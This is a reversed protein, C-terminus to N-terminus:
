LLGGSTWTSIWILRDVVGGGVDKLDMKIIMRGDICLRGPPRNNDHKRVLVRYANRKEEFHEM